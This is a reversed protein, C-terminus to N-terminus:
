CLCNVAYYGISIRYVSVTLEVFSSKLKKRLLNVMKGKIFVIYSSNYDYMFDWSRHGGGCDVRMVIYHM